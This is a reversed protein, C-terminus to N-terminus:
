KGRGIYDVFDGKKRTGRGKKDCAYKRQGRPQGPPPIPASCNSRRMISSYISYSQIQFRKISGDRYVCQNILCFWCCLYYSCFLLGLTSFRRGLTYTHLILAFAIYPSELDIVMEFNWFQVEGQGNYPLCESLLRKIENSVFVFGLRLGFTCWGCAM